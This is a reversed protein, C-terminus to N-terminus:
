HFLFSLYQWYHNSIVSKQLNQTSIVLSSILKHVSKKTPPAEFLWNGFPWPCAFSRIPLHIQNKKGFLGMQFNYFKTFQALLFHVNCHCWLSCWPMEFWWDRSQKSLWKNLHADFFVAFSQTVPRQSPFGGTVLPNGECLALLSSFTEMQYRWWLQFCRWVLM